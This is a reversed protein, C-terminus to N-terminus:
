QYQDQRLLSGMDIFMKKSEPETGPESQVEGPQSGTPLIEANEPQSKRFWVKWRSDSKTTTEKTSEAPPQTKTWKTCCRTKWSYHICKGIVILASLVGMLFISVMFGSVHHSNVKDTKLLHHMAHKGIARAEDLEKKNSRFLDVALQQLSTSPSRHAAIKIDEAGIRKGSDMILPLSVQKRKSNCRKFGAPTELNTPTICQVHFGSLKAPALLINGAILDNNHVTRLMDPGCNKYSKLCKIEVEDGDPSRLHTSNITELHELHYKSIMNKMNMQCSPAFGAEAVLSKGKIFVELGTTRSVLHTDSNYSCIMRSCRLESGQLSSSLHSFFQNLRHKFKDLLVSTQRISTIVHSLFEADHSRVNMRHEIGNIREQLQTVTEEQNELVSEELKQEIAITLLKKFMQKENKSLRNFNSNIERLMETDKPSGGGIEIVSMPSRKTRPYPDENLQFCEEIVNPEPNAELLNKFSTAGCKRSQDNLKDTYHSGLTKDLESLDTTITKIDEQIKKSTITLESERQKCLIEKPKTLSISNLYLYVNNTGNQPELDDITVPTQGLAEGITKLLVDCVEKTELKNSPIRFQCYITDTNKIITMDLLLASTSGPIIPMVSRDLSDAPVATEQARCINDSHPGTWGTYKNNIDRRRLLSIYYISMGVLRNTLSYPIDISYTSPVTSNLIDSKLIECDDQLALAPSPSSLILLAAITIIRPSRCLPPTLSPSLSVTSPQLLKKVKGSIARYNCQENKKKRSKFIKLKMRSYQYNLISKKDIYYCNNLRLLVSTQPSIIKLICNVAKRKSTMPTPSSLEPRTELFRPSNMKAFCDLTCQLVIPTM